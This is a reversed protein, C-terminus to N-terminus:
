RRAADLTQQQCQPQFQSLMVAPAGGTEGALLGAAPSQVIRAQRQLM